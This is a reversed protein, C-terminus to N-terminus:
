LCPHVQGPEQGRRPLYGAMPVHGLAEPYGTVREPGCVLWAHKAPIDTPRQMRGFGIYIVWPVHQGLMRQAALAQPVCWITYPVRRKVARIAWAVDRARAEQTATLRTAAQAAQAEQIPVGRGLQPAFFRYPLLLTALAYFTCYGWASVFLAAGRFTRRDPNEKNM